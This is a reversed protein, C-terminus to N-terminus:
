GSPVQSTQAQVWSGCVARLVTASASPMSGSRTVTFTVNSPPPNPRLDFGSKMTSAANSALFVPAGTLTM